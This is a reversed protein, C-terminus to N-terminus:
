TTAHLYISLKITTTYIFAKLFLHTPPWISDATYLYFKVFYDNLLWVIYLASPNSLILQKQVCFVYPQMYWTRGYASMGKMMWCSPINWRSVCPPFTLVSLCIDADHVCINRMDDAMWVVGTEVHFRLGSGQMPPGRQMTVICSPWGCGYIWGGLSIVCPVSISAFWNVNPLPRM